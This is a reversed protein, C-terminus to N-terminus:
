CSPVTCCGHLQMFRLSSRCCALLLGGFKRRCRKQRQLKQLEFMRREGRPERIGGVCERECRVEGNCHRRLLRIAGALAASLPRPKPEGAPQDGGSM